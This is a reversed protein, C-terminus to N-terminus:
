WAAFILKERLLKIYLHEKTCIREADNGSFIFTGAGIVGCM